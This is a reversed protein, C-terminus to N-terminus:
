LISDIFIYIDILCFYLSYKNKINNIVLFYILYFSLFNIFDKLGIWFTNNILLSLTAILIFLLITLNLSHISYIVKGEKIIKLIYFAIIGLALLNIIIAQNIRFNYVYKYIFLAPLIIIPLFFFKLM